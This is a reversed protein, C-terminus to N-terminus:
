KTFLDDIAEPPALPTEDRGYVHKEVFAAIPDASVVKRESAVAFHRRLGGGLLVDGLCKLLWSRQSGHIKWMTTESTLSMSNDLHADAFSLLASPSPTVDFHAKCVAKGNDYKSTIFLSPITLGGLQQQIKDYSFQFLPEGMKDTSPSIVILAKVEPPHTGVFNIVEVGGMSFGGAVVKTLDPTFGDVKAQKKIWDLCAALWTGDSSLACVTTARFFASVVFDKTSIEPRIDNTRDAVVCIYGKDAVAQLLPTHCKSDGGYTHAFLFVPLAGTGSKAHAYDFAGKSSPTFTAFTVDEKGPLDCKNAM